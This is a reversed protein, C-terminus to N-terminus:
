PEPYSRFIAPLYLSGIPALVRYGAYDHIAIGRFAEDSQYHQKVLVLEGEMVEAGEEFFTVKEPEVENTEVGVVVKKSVGQAYDVERQTHYIIGDHGEASDRFAMIVVRDAVDQVHQDLPKTSNQHTAEISDYWLPIDVTLTLISSSTELEQKVASLLDLYQTITGPRDSDWEPLLYPEVDLHVGTPRSCQAVRETYSIAQQVFGLAIPYTSSLAWTPDGALLDVQLGVDHAESIFGELEQPSDSILSYAHLYADSVGRLQVFGFFERQARVNTVVGSDWIWLGRYDEDAQMRTTAESTSLPESGAAPRACDHMETADPVTRMGSVQFALVLITFLVIRQM